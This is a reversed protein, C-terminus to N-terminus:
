ANGGATMINQAIKSLDQQLQTLQTHANKLAASCQPWTDSRFQQALQGDWINPESLTQGQTELQNISGIFSGNLISQIQTIATKAESTSLVRDSM